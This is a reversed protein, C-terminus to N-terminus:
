LFIPIFKMLLEFLRELFDILGDWDVGYTGETVSKWASGYEATSAVETAYCFAMERATMEKDIDGEKAMARIRPLVQRPLIGLARKQKRTLRAAKVEAEQKQEDPQEKVVPPKQEQATAVQVIAPSTFLLLAAFLIAAKILFTKM